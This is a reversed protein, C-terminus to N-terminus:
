WIESDSLLIQTLCPLYLDVPDQRQPMAEIQTSQDAAM